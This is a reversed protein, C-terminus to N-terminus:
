LFQTDMCKHAVLVSCFLRVKLTGIFSGKGLDDYSASFSSHKLGTLTTEVKWNGSETEWDRVPEDEEGKPGRDLTYIRSYKWGNKMALNQCKDELKRKEETTGVKKM